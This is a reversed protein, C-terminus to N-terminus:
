QIETKILDVKTVAAGSAERVSGIQLNIEGGGRRPIYDITLEVASDYLRHVSYVRVRGPVGGPPTGLIVYNSTELATADVPTAFFVTMRSRPGKPPPEAEVSAKKASATPQQRHDHTSIFAVGCIVAAILMLPLVAKSGGGRKEPTTSKGPVGTISTGPETTKDKAKDTLPQGLTEQVPSTSAQGALEAIKADLASIEKEVAAIQEPLPKEPKILGAVAFCVVAVVLGAGGYRFFVGFVSPDDFLSYIGGIACVGAVLAALAGPIVLVMAVVTRAAKSLKRGFPIRGRHEKELAGARHLLAELKTVAAKKSEELEAVSKEGVRSPVRRLATDVEKAISERLETWARQQRELSVQGGFTKALTYDLIREAHENAEKISATIMLPLLSPVKSQFHASEESTLSKLSARWQYDAVKPIFDRGAMVARDLPEFVEKRIEAALSATPTGRVEPRVACQRMIEACDECCREVFQEIRDLFRGCFIILSSTEKTTKASFSSDLPILLWTLNARIAQATAGYAREDGPHLQVQPDDAGTKETGRPIQRTM